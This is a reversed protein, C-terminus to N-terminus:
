SRQPYQPYANTCIWLRERKNEVPVGHTVSTAHVGLQTDCELVILPLKAALARRVEDREDVVIESVEGVPVVRRLGDAGVREREQGETPPERALVDVEIRDRGLHQEVVESRAPLRPDGTAWPRVHQAHVAPSGVGVLRRRDVQSQRGEFPQEREPAHPVGVGLVRDGLAFLRPPRTGPLSGPHEGRPEAGEGDSAGEVGLAAYAAATM